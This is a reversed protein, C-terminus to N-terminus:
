LRLAPPQYPQQIDDVLSQWRAELQQLEYAVQSQEADSIQFRNSKADHLKAKHLHIANQIRFKEKLAGDHADSVNSEVAL